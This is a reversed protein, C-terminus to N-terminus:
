DLRGACCPAWHFDDIFPALADPDDPDYEFDGPDYVATVVDVRSGAEIEWPEEGLQFGDPGYNRLDGCGAAHVHFTGQRQYRLNPGCVAVKLTAPAKTEAAAM